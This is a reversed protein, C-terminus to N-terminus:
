LESRQGSGQVCLVQTVASARTWPAAAVRINNCPFTLNCRSVCVPNSALESAKKNVEQYRSKNNPQFQLDVVFKDLRQAV